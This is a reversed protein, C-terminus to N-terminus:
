WVHHNIDCNYLKDKYLVHDTTYPMPTAIQEIPVMDWSSYFRNTASPGFPALLCSKTSSRMEGVPSTLWIMHVSIMLACLQPFSLTVLFYIYQLNRFWIKGTPEAPGQCSTFLVSHKDQQYLDSCFLAGPNQWFISHTGIPIQGLMAKMQIRRQKNQLVSFNNQLVKPKELEQRPYELKWHFDSVRQSWVLLEGSNEWVVLLDLM